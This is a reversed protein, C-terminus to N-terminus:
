QLTMAVRPRAYRRGRRPTAHDRSTRRQLSARLAAVPFHKMGLMDSERRLRMWARCRLNFFATLRVAL